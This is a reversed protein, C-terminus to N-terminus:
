DDAEDEEGPERMPTPDPVQIRKLSRVEQKWARDQNKLENAKKMEETLARQALIGRERADWWTLQAGTEEDVKDRYAEVQDTIWIGIDLAYRLARPIDNEFRTLMDDLVHDKAADLGSYRAVELYHVYRTNPDRDRCVPCSGTHFSPHDNTDWSADTPRM